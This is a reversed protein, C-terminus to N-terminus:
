YKGITEMDVVSFYIANIFSINLMFSQILSGLRPLLAPSYCYYHSFMTQINPRKRNLICTLWLFILPILLRCTGSNVFDKTQYYDIILTINTITSILTSCVTSWFSQGFAFDDHFRHVQVGFITVASTNILDTKATLSLKACVSMVSYRVMRNLSRICHIPGDSNVPGQSDTFTIGFQSSDM